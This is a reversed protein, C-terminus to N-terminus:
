NCREWNGSKWRRFIWSKELVKSSGM